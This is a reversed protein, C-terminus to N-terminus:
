GRRELLLAIFLADRARQLCQEKENGELERAEKMLLRSKLKLRHVMNAREYPDLLQWLKVRPRAM